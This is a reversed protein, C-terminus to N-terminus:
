IPLAFAATKGTGTQASGIVDGGRLVVPIAQAQIPTPTEYGMEQVAYALADSLGLASFATEMKPVDVPTAPKVDVTRPHDFTKDVTKRERKGHGGRERGGHRGGRGGREEHRSEGAGGRAERRPGGPGSERRSHGGHAKQGHGQG